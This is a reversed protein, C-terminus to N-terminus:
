YRTFIQSEVFITEDTEYIQYDFEVDEGYMEVIDTYIQKHLDEGDKFVYEYKLLLKEMIM